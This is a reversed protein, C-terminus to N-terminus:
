NNSAARLKKILPTLMKKIERALPELKEFQHSSFYSLDRALMLHYQVETASGMAIDFFRATDRPSSRGCGEALNAAISMSARRLQNTLGFKEEPPFMRTEQYIELTLSHAKGWVGLKTFDQM